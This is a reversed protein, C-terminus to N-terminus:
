NKHVKRSGSCHLEPFTLHLMEHFQGPSPRAEVGIKTLVEEFTEILSTMHDIIRMADYRAVPSVYANEPMELFDHIITRVQQCGLWSQLVAVQCDATATLGNDLDVKYNDKRNTM